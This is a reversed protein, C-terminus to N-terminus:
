CLLGHQDCRTTLFIPSIGAQDIGRRTIKGLTLFFNVKPLFIIIQFIKSEKNEHNLKDNDM